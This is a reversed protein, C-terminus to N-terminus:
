RELAAGMADTVTDVPILEVQARVDAPLHQADRVNARPLLVRTLGALYSAVLKEHIGDIRQVDGHLTIAGTAGLRPRLAKGLYASAGALALALGASAGDKQIESDTFNLHLDHSRVLHDIGLAVARAKLGTFAVQCSERIAPGVNGSFLLEGKGPVAMAELPSVGGGRPTWGLVGIRGVTTSSAQRIRYRALLEAPELGSPAGPGLMAGLEPAARIAEALLPAAKEANGELKMVLARLAAYEPRARLPPAAAVLARKAAPALGAAVARAAEQLEPCRAGLALAPDARGTTEGMDEAIARLLAAAAGDQPSEARARGALDLAREWLGKKRAIEGAKVFRAADHPQWRAAEMLHLLADDSRGQSLLHEALEDHAGAEGPHLLVLAELAKRAEEPREARAHARSLLRAADPFDPRRAVAESLQKVAPELQGEEFLRLGLAYRADPDEPRLVVARKLELTTPPIESM